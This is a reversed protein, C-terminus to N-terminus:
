DQRSARQHGKQNSWVSVLFLTFAAPPRYAERSVIQPSHGTSSLANQGSLWVCLKGDHVRQEYMNQMGKAYISEVDRGCAVVESDRLGRIDMSFAALAHQGQPKNVREHDAM